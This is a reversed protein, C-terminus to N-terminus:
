VLSHQLLVSFLLFHYLHSHTRSATSHRPHHCGFVVASARLLIEAKGGSTVTAAM